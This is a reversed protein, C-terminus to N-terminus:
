ISGCSQSDGEPSQWIVFFQLKRLRQWIKILRESSQRLLEFKIIFTVRYELTQNGKFKVDVGMKFWVHRVLWGGATGTKWIWKPIINSLNFKCWNVLLQTNLIKFHQRVGIKILGERKGLGVRGRQNTNNDKHMLPPENSASTRLVQNASAPIQHQDQSLLVCISEKRGRVGLLCQWWWYIFGLSYILISKGPIQCSAMSFLMYLFFFLFIFFM